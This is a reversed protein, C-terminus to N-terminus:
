RRFIKHTIPQIYAAVKLGMIGLFASLPNGIKIILLLGFLILIVGYRILNQKQMHKVAGAEGLDMATNLTVAMHVAMFLAIVVGILLGISYFMKEKVFYVGILEALVGFIVIGVLLDFLVESIADLKKIM